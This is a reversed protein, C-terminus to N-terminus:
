SPAEVNISTIKWAGDVQRWTAHAAIDGQNTQFRVRFRHEVDAEEHSEINYGSPTPFSTIGATMSMAENLAENSLDAMATFIDGELLADCARRM